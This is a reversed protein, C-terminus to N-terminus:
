NSNWEHYPMKTNNSEYPQGWKITNYHLFTTYCYVLLNQRKIKWWSWRCSSNIICYPWSNESCPNCQMISLSMTPYLCLNHSLIVIMHKLGKLSSPFWWIKVLFSYTMKKILKRLSRMKSLCFISNFIHILFPSM